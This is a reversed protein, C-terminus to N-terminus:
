SNIINSGHRILNLCSSIIQENWLHHPGVDGHHVNMIPHDKMQEAAGLNPVCCGCYVHM